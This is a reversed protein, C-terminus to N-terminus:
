SGKRKRALRQELKRAFTELYVRDIDPRLAMLAKLNFAHEVGDPGDGYELFRWYFPSARVSAALFDRKGRERKPHIGSKLDGSDSPAFDSASQALQKALDFVVTRMLNTAEKPGLEILTRRVDDLGKVKVSM